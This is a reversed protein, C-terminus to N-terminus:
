TRCKMSSEMAIRARKSLTTRFIILCQNELHFERLFMTIPKTSSAEGPGRFSRGVLQSFVSRMAKNCLEYKSGKVELGIAILREQWVVLDDHIREPYDELTADDFRWSIGYMKSLSSVEPQKMLRYLLSHPDLQPESSFAQRQPLSRRASSHDPKLKTLKGCFVTSALHELVRWLSFRNGGWVILHIICTSRWSSGSLGHYLTPGFASGGRMGWQNLGLQVPRLEEGLAQVVPWSDM